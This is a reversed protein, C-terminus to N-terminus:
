AVWVSGNGNSVWYLNNADIAIGWPSDQSGSTQIKVPPHPCLAGNSCCDAGADSAGADCASGAVQCRGQCCEYGAVCTGDPDCLSGSLDALCSTGVKLLAASLSAVLVAKLVRDGM